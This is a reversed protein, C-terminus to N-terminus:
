GSLLFHATGRGGSLMITFPASAEYKSPSSYADFRAGVRTPRIMVRYAFFVAAIEQDGGNISFSESTIRGANREAGKKGRSSRAGQSKQQDDLRKQQEATLLPRLQSMVKDMIAKTKQRMEQKLASMEPKAQDFIPQAKAKQDATLNLSQSIRAFPDRERGGGGHGGRGPAQAVPSKTTPATSATPTQAIAFGGLALAGVATLTILKRKM